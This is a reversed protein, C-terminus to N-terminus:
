CSSVVPLCARFVISNDCVELKGGCTGEISPVGAAKAVEMLSKGEEADIRIQEGEYTEFVLPVLAVRPRPTLATASLAGTPGELKAKLDAAFAVQEESSMGMRGRWLSLLLKSEEVSRVRGPATSADRILDEGLPTTTTELARAFAEANSPVVSGYMDGNPFDIVNAAYNHGGVHAIEQM